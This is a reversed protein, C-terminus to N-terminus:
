WEYVLVPISKKNFYVCVKDGRRYNREIRKLLPKLEEGNRGYTLSKNARLMNLGIMFIFLLLVCYNLNIRLQMRNAVRYLYRLFIFFSMFLAPSLFLNQRIPGMPFLRVTSLIVCVVVTGLFIALVTNEEYRKRKFLLFALLVVCLMELSYPRLEISYFGM